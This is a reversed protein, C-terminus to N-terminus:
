IAFSRLRYNFWYSVGHETGTRGVLVDSKFYEFFSSDRFVFVLTRLDVELGCVVTLRCQCELPDPSMSMNQKSKNIFRKKSRKTYSERSVHDVARVTFVLCSVHSKLQAFSILPHHSTVRYSASRLWGRLVLTSQPYVTCLTLTRCTCTNGYSSQVCRCCLTISCKSAGFRFDLM